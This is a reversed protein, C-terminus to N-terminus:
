KSQCYYMDILFGSPAPRQVTVVHNRARKEHPKESYIKYPCKPWASDVKFDVKPGFSSEIVLAV